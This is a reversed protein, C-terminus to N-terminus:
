YISGQALSFVFFSSKTFIFTLFSFDKLCIFLWVCLWVSLFLSLCVPLCVSLSVSLSLQLYLFLCAPLCMSLSVSLWLSLCVSQNLCPGIHINRVDFIVSNQPIQPLEVYCVCYISNFSIHLPGHRCFESSVRSDMKNCLKNKIENIFCYLFLSSIICMVVSDFKLYHWKIFIQKKKNKM